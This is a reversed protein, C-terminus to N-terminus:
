RAAPPLAAQSKATPCHGRLPCAPCHPASRKCVRRGLERLLLHARQLAACEAPLEAAAAAQASRHSGDYGKQEEGYGLRLLARLGNSELALIPAGGLFLLIKEAGPKGIAPFQQLARLAKQVPLALLAAEHGGHEQLLIRAADHLRSAREDAHIGGQQTFKRLQAPSLALVREAQLGTAAALTAFAQARQEDDALYAVNEWLVHALVTPLPPAAPVGFSEQLRALLRPLRPQKKPPPSM